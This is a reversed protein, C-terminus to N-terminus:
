PCIFEPKADPSASVCYTKDVPVIKLPADEPIDHWGRFGELFWLIQELPPNEVEIAESQLLVPAARVKIPVTGENIQASIEATRVANVGARVGLSQLPVVSAQLGAPLAVACLVVATVVGLLRFLRTPSLYLLATFASLAVLGISVVLGFAPLTFNRFPFYTSGYNSAAFVFYSSGLFLVVAFLLTACHFRLKSKPSGLMLATVLAALLILAIVWARLGDFLQPYYGLSEVVIRRLSFPVELAARRDRTGPALLIILFGATLAGLSAFALVLRDWRRTCLEWLVWIGAAAIALLSTPESFSQALIMWTVAAALVAPNPRPERALILMFAASGMLGILSGLYVSSSTFWLYSDTLSPVTFLALPPVSFGLAVALLTRTDSKPLVLSFLWTATAGLACLMLAPMVQIASKGFVLFASTVLLNQSLRGNHTLYHDAIYTVPSDFSSLKAFYAYDDAIPNASFGMLLLVTNLSIMVIWLLVLGNFSAVKHAILTTSRALPSERGTIKNNFIIKRYLFYNWGTTMLLALTRSIFVGLVSATLTTFLLTFGYNLLVLAVYSTAQAGIVVSRRDRNRFALLKQLVFSFVLGLWYSATVAAHDGASLLSVAVALVLMEFIYGLGGIVAYRLFQSQNFAKLARSIM